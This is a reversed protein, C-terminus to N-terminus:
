MGSCTLRDASKTATSDGPYAAGGEALELQFREELAAATRRLAQENNM